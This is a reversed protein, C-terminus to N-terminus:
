IINPNRFGCFQPSSNTNKLWCNVLVFATLVHERIFSSLLHPHAWQHPHVARHWGWGGLPPVVWLPSPEEGDILLWFFIRCVHECALRSSVIGWQRESMESVDLNTDLHCFNHCRYFHNKLIDRIRKNEWCTPKCFPLILFCRLFLDNKQTLSLSPSALGPARVVCNMDSLIERPLPTFTQKRFCLQLITHVFNKCTQSFSTKQETLFPFIVCYKAM